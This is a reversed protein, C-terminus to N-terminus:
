PFLAVKLPTVVRAERGGELGSTSRERSDGTALTGSMKTLKVTIESM